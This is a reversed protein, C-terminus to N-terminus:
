ANGLQRAPGDGDPVQAAYSVNDTRQETDALDVAYYDRLARDQEESLEDSVEVEPSERLHAASYPVRLRDDELKLRAVPVFVLRGSSLGESAELTVWMPADHEGLGFVHRIKGLGRGDQDWVSEGQLNKLDEIIRTESM